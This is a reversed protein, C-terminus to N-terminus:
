IWDKRRFYVLMGLVSVFMIGLLVPYGWRAHLEPMYDFNMGYLGTLFSLPIFITGVVTLVKMVENMRNSVASMHLDTVGSIVDRLTEVTDIIQVAHDYVDRLFLRTESAVLPNASRAMTSLLERLPWVARKVLLAERKLAHVVHLTESSADSLARDEAEEVRESLSELIGFYQDVIADILAYALYDPGRQRITGRGGRLRERVPEFVDGRREQFSLVYNKGVVLSVQEEDVGGDEALSLMRLVLFLHDPYEEVKPRHHTDVIDEPILRHLAVRKALDEITAVDSLGVLNIWSVTEPQDLPTVASAVTEATREEFHDPGYDLLAIQAPEVARQGTYVMTGPPAGPQKALRKPVLRRAKRPKKAKKPRAM